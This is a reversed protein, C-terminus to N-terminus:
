WGKELLEDQTVDDPYEVGFTQMGVESCAKKKMRVYTASDKRGGVLIVALGPPLGQAALSDVRAKIEGRITAAIADGSILNAMEFESHSHIFYHYVRWVSFLFTHDFIPGLSVFGRPSSYASFFNEQV